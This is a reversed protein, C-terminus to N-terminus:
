RSLVDPRVAVDTAHGGRWARPRVAGDCASACTEALSCLCDDGARIAGCGWDGCSNEEGTGQEGGESAAVLLVWVLVPFIVAMEKTLLASALLVLSAVWWAGRRPQSRDRWSLFAVFALAAFMAVMSDSAASIWVTPEIHIPHLAFIATAIAATWYELGLKRALWFVAATALVHALIAGLHWGWARLGFVSYNLMSWAVFLPRYYVQHRAMHYWLDSGFARPLNSWSRILPNNVIQPWDDWVFDFFLASSYLVITTLGLLTLLWVPRRLYESLVELAGPGLEQEREDLM